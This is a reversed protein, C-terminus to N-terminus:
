RTMDRTNERHLSSLSFSTDYWDTEFDWL